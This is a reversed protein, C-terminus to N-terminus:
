VASEEIANPVDIRAKVWEQQKQRHTGKTFVKVTIGNSYPIARPKKRRSTLFAKSHCEKRPRIIREGGVKITKKKNLCSEPEGM